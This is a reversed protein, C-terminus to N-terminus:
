RAEGGEVDPVLYENGRQQSTTSLASYPSQMKPAQRLVMTPRPKNEEGDWTASGSHESKGESREGYNGDHPPSGNPNDVSMMSLDSEQVPDLLVGKRFGKLDSARPTLDESTMEDDDDDNTGSSARSECDSSQSNSSTSMMDVTGNSRKRRWRHSHAQLIRRGAQHARIRYSNARARLQDQATLRRCGMFSGDSNPVNSEPVITSLSVILIPSAAQRKRLEVKYVVFIALLLFLVGVVSIIIAEEEDTITQAVM